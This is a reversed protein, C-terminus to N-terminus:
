GGAMNDSPKEKLKLLTRSIIYLAALSGGVIILLQQNQGDSQTLSAALPVVATWFETTQTGSKM